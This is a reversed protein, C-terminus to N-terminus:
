FVNIRKGKSQYYEHENIVMGARIEEGLIAQSNAQDM